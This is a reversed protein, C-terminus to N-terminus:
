RAAAPVPRATRAAVTARLKVMVEPLKNRQISALMSSPLPVKPSAQIRYTVLSRMGDDGWPVVTWDGENHYYDGEIMKWQRRWMKGEAITHVSRTVSLLDAFPFPLDAVIRCRRVETALPGDSPLPAEVKDVSSASISPMTNQYNACDSVISWVLAPPAEIVARATAEEVDNGAVKRLTTVIEGKALLAEDPGALALAAVLLLPNM